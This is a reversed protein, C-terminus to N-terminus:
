AFYSNEKFIWVALKVWMKSFKMLHLKLFDLSYIAESFVEHTLGKIGPLLLFTVCKFLGAASLTVETVM